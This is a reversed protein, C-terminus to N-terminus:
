KIGRHWALFKISFEQSQCYDFAQFSYIKGESSNGESDENWTANLNM